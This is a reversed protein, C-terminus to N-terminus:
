FEKSVYAGGCTAFEAAKKDYGEVDIESQEVIHISANGKIDEQHGEALDKHVVKVFNLLIHLLLTRPGLSLSVLAPWRPRLFPPHLAFQHVDELRIFNIKKLSIEIEDPPIKLILYM